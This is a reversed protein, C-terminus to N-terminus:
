FQVAKQAEPDLLDFPPQMGHAHRVLFEDRRFVQPHATVFEENVSRRPSPRRAQCAAKNERRAGSCERRMSLTYSSMVAKGRCARPAASVMPLKSPTCGPCWASASFVFCTACASPAGAAT